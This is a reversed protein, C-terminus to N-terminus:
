TKHHKYAANNPDLVVAKKFYERAQITGDMTHIELSELYVFRHSFHSVTKREKCGGEEM